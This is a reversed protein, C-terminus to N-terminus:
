FTFFDSVLFFVCVFCVYVFICFFAGHAICVRRHLVHLRFCRDKSSLPCIPVTYRAETCAMLLLEQM